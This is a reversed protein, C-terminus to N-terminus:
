IPGTSVLFFLKLSIPECNHFHCAFFKGHVLERAIISLKTIRSKQMSM